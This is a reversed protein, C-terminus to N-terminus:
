HGGSPTFPCAVWGGPASVQQRRGAPRPGMRDREVAGGCREARERYVTGQGEHSLLFALLGGVRAGQPRSRRGTAPARRDGAARRM